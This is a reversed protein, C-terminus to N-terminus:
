RLNPLRQILELYFKRIMRNQLKICLLDLRAFIIVRSRFRTELFATLGIDSDPCFMGKASAPAIIYLM